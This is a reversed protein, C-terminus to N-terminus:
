GYFPEMLENINEYSWDVILKNIGGKDKLFTTGFKYVPDLNYWDIGKSMLMELQKSRGKGHLEKHSFNAQASMAISNRKWDMFRWRFYNIVEEKPINFCRSDFHAIRPQKFQDIIQLNTEKLQNYKITFQVSAMAASVSCIKQISYNYWADTELEDYDTVLISIEDSQTYGIKAGQINQMLFKTTEQMSNIIDNDYPKKCGKTFTHFAKGDLRIIVPTRRTLYTKARDEYNSKMRDGLSDKKM